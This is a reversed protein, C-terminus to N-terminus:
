PPPLPVNAGPMPSGAVSPPAAAVPNQMDQAGQPMAEGTPAGTATEPPKSEPKPGGPAAPPMMPPPQIMQWYPRTWALVNAYGDPQQERATRGEDGNIWERVVTVVLPPDFEMPDPPLTSQLQMQVSGDPMMLPVQQPAAQMLEHITDRIHNRADLVPLRWKELGLATHVEQLNDPDILGFANWADPGKDLLQAFFDRTQGWTMPIAEEVELHWGDFTLQVDPDFQTLQHLGNDYVARWFARMENWVPSLQMLAQNLQRSAQYATNVNAEGGFLAPLIGVDERAQQILLDAWQLLPAPLEPRPAAWMSDQLRKGVGAVAEIMEGPSAPNEKFAKKNIVTPDFLIFGIGREATEVAINRIDNLVDQVSMYDKCVADPYMSINPEPFCASWKSPIRVNDVDIVEDNVKTIQIGDGLAAQLQQRKANDKVFMLMSPSLWVESVLWRDPRPALYSGIQNSTSDRATRGMQSLSTGGTGESSKDRMEMLKKAAYEHLGDSYAALVVSQHEEYERWLWPLTDVSDGYFPTTVRLITELTLEPFAKPYRDVGVQQPLDLMQPPVFEEPQMFKGCGPCMDMAPSPTGCASCVYQGPGDPTPVDEMHPVERVGYKAANAVPHVYGFTTGFVWLSLALRRQVREVDWTSRLRALQVNADRAARVATDDDLRDAIAKVNPGRQGLVAVFKKGDGRIKNQVYDYTGPVIGQMYKMQGTANRWDVVQQDYVVPVVYQNGCWYSWARRADSYQHRKEPDVTNFVHGEVLSKLEPLLAILENDV